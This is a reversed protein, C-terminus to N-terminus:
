GANTVPTPAPKSLSGSDSDLGCLEKAWSGYRPNVVVVAQSCEAALTTTDVKGAVVATNALAVALNKGGPTDALKALVTNGAITEARAADTLEISHNKAIKEAVLGQVHAQVVTPGLSAADQGVIPAAAASAAEIESVGIVTGDVVAASSPAQSCGSLGLVAVAVAALVRHAEFKSWFKPM